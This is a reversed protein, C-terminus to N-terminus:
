KKARLRKKNREHKEQISVIGNSNLNFNFIPRNDVENDTMTNVVIPQVKKSKMMEGIDIRNLRIKELWSLNNGIAAVSAPMIHERFHYEYPKKGVALSVGDVPGNGTYGGRDPDFVGGKKFSGFDTSRAQAVGATLGIALAALAAAITFASAVGGGEAAAKSVTVITNAVLELSALVQQRRVFKERKKTIEDLRKQELELLAVNGKEALEEADKVRQEQLKTVETYRNIELQLLQNSLDTAISLASKVNDIRNLVDQKRLEQREKVAEAELETIKNQIRIAEIEEGKGADQLIKLKEKAFRIQTNIRKLASSEEIGQIALEHREAEDLLEFNIEKEKAIENDFLQKRLDSLAKESEKLQAVLKDRLEGPGAEEVLRQFENVQEQLAKLSGETFLEIPRLKANAEDLQKQADILTKVTEKFQDGDIILDERLLQSLDNVRKQLFAITGEIIEKNKEANKTSGGLPDGGADSLKKSDEIISAILDKITKDIREVEGELAGSIGAGFGAAIQAGKLNEASIDQSANVEELRESTLKLSEQYVKEATNRQKFLNVLEEEKAQISFKLYLAENVKNLALEIDQYSSKEADINKLYTPYQQQLDKIIKTREQQTINADNLKNKAIEIKATEKSYNEITNQTIRNQRDKEANNKKVEDNLKVFGAVLATIALVAIGIGTAALALRFGKMAGTSEGVVFAYAKQGVIQLRTVINDGKKLETLIQQTGVLLSLAGQAKQAAKALEENDEAFLATAGQLVGFAAVANQAGEVITDTFFTDSSLAKIFENTKQIKDELKAAEITLRNFLVPDTTKAAEDRLKRLQSQLSAVKKEAETASPVNIFKQKALEALSDRAEISAEVIKDIVDSAGAQDLALIAKKFDNAIRDIDSIKSVGELEKKFDEVIKSAQEASISVQNFAEKLTNTAAIQQMAKGTKEISQSLQSQKQTQTDITKNLQNAAQEVKKDAAVKELNSKTVKNSAAVLQDLKEVSLEAGTVKYETELILKETREAM